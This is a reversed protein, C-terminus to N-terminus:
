KFLVGLIEFLYKVEKKFNEMEEVAVEEKTMFNNRYHDNFLFKMRDSIVKNEIKGPDFLVEGDFNNILIFKNKMQQYNINVKTNINNFKEIDFANCFIYWNM